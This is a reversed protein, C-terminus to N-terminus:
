ISTIMYNFPEKVIHVIREIFHDITDAECSLQVSRNSKQLLIPKVPLRMRQLHETNCVDLVKDFHTPDQFDTISIILKKM